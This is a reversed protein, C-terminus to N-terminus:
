ETDVRAVHLAEAYKKVRDLWEGVLAPFQGTAGDVAVLLAEDGGNGFSRTKGAIFASGGHLAIGLAGEDEPGGWTRAWQLNGAPSYRLLVFDLGGAGESGTEGAVLVNGSTDVAVARASESKAGGWVREWVMRLKKDYKRLFIQGGKGKDLTLGVVYLHDADATLGLGDTFIPGGWTENAVLKGTDKSFSAVFGKGGALMNAGNYRGAVYVSDADVALQGDGQDWGDTGWTQAWQLKGAATLKLLAVDNGTTKGTTWGSVYIDDGDVALGDVEEYGYGQGWTFSWVVEGTGADLSLVAMDADTLDGSGYQLGGVLVREGAAVVVFTKEMFRGGWRTKWLERGDPAFKYIVM